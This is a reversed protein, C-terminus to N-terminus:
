QGQPLQPQQQQRQLLKASRDADHSGGVSPEQQATTAVKPQQQPASGTEPPMSGISAAVPLSGLSLRMADAPGSSSQQIAGHAAASALPPGAGGTLSAQPPGSQAALLSQLLAVGPSIHGAALLRSDTM